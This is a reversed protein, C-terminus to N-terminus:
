GAAAVVDRPAVAVVFAVVLPDKEGAEVQFAEVLNRKVAAATNGAVGVGVVAHKVGVVVVDDDDAVDAVDATAEAVM